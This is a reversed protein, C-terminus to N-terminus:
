KLRGRKKGINEKSQPCYPLSLGYKELIGNLEKEVEEYDSLYAARRSM